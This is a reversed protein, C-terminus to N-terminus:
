RSSRPRCNRSGWARFRNCGARGPEATAGADMLRLGAARGVHRPRAGGDLHAAYRHGAGRRLGARHQLAPLARLDALQRVQPAHRGDGRRLVGQAVRRAGRRAQGARLHRAPLRADPRHRRRGNRRRGACRRPGAGPRRGQLADLRSLTAPWDTFHADGCYCASKYEVIDGSFVVNADPVYAVIDGATHARGIHRCSSAASASTAADHAAQLDPDALDPRSDIEAARFLRPFRGYESDWDEKGREAIMARCTDSALIEQAGYASAGLVRVAHYHSLVVYKIPKDTVKRVREIVLRAMVPTAQADVVIVGDDGVIIGSNPDGEATFAYLDRGIETFTITKEALDGTSAFDGNDVNGPTSGSVRRQEAPLLARGAQEIAGFISRGAADLMEIRVRDGFKLFPTRPKGDLMTEVMRVEALCTYGAGGQDVPRAPGGDRKNSVTGSGIITGAGLRRTKAAHAILEPFSFTM